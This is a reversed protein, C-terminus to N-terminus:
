ELYKFYKAYRKHRLLFARIEKPPVAYGLYPIPISQCENKERITGDTQQVEEVWCDDTVLSEVVVIIGLLDGDKTFVGGGSSGFLIGGGVEWALGKIMNPRSKSGIVTKKLSRYNYNPNSVTWVDEGIRPDNKAKVIKTYDFKTKTKIEVLALDYAPSVLINEASYMHHKIPRDGKYSFYGVNVTATQASFNIKDRLVHYATLILTLEGDSHIVVGSASEVTFVSETIREPVTKQYVKYDKIGTLVLAVVFLTVILKKM